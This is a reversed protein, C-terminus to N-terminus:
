YTVFLRGDRVLNESSKLQACEQNTGQRFIWFLSTICMTLYVFQFFFREVLFLAILIFFRKVLLNRMYREVLVGTTLFLKVKLYILISWNKIHHWMVKSKFGIFIALPYLQTSSSCWKPM